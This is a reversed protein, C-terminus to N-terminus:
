HGLLIKVFQLYKCSPPKVKTSFALNLLQKYEVNFCIWSAPLAELQLRQYLAPLDQAASSIWISVPISETYDTKLDGCAPIMEVALTKTSIFCSM